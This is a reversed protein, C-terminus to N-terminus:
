HSFLHAQIDPNGKRWTVTDLSYHHINIFIWFLYFFLSPGFVDKSYHINDNLWGPLAWFGLYGLGFGTVVFLTLRLAPRVHSSLSRSRNIEYRWVVALYQLSHFLPIWLLVIPDRVLLWAYVSVVYALVGNWAIAQNGRRRQQLAMYLRISTFACALGSVMLVPMSVPVAFYVIEFYAPNPTGIMFNILLWSFIWTAYANLLFRRKEENTYFARKLAADVMVMGYGQKVYHWGVLFFMLNAGIGLARQAHLLVATSFFGILFVPVIVGSVFYRWRLDKSYTTLKKWFNRYFIQYSHAFHPHNIVNALMLTVAFSWARDTYVMRLALLIFLSGGGLLVIDWLPSFLYNTHLPPPLAARSVNNKM